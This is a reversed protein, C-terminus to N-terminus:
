KANKGKGFVASRLQERAAAQEEEDLEVNANINVSPAAATEYRILSMAIQMRTSASTDPDNMMLILLEQATQLELGEGEDKVRQALEQFTKCYQTHKDLHKKIYAEMRKPALGQNERVWRMKGAMSTIHPRKVKRKDM